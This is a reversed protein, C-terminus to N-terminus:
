YQDGRGSGIDVDKKIGKKVGIAVPALFEQDDLIAETMKM